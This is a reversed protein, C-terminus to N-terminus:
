SNATLFIPADEGQDWWVLPRGPRGGLEPQQVFPQGWLPDIQCHCGLSCCRCHADMIHQLRNTRARSGCGLYGWRNAPRAVSLHNSLCLYYEGYHRLSHNTTVEKALENTTALEVGVRDSVFDNKEPMKPGSGWTRSGMLVTTGGIEAIFFLKKESRLVGM